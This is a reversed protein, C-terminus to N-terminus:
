RQSKMERLLLSGAAGITGLFVLAEWPAFSAGAGAFRPMAVIYLDLWHGALIALSVRFLVRGDRKTWEPLLVLFPAFWNLGVSTMSLVAWGGTHRRLFFSTEEPNNTYWILMYQCYWIYAWFMSFGFILKGLDHLEAGSLADAGNDSDGMLFAAAALAALAGLFLGSFVYVGFMTSSWRPELAMLWDFSALSVTVGFTVLFAAASATGRIMRLLFGWVTLYVMARALLFSPALWIKQAEPIISPPGAQVWDYLEGRGFWLAAMVVLAVPWYCRTMAEAIPRLRSSWRAGTVHQIALFVGAGLCLTVPYLGAVLLTPFLKEPARWAGFALAAAGLAAAVALANRLRM